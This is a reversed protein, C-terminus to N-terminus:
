RDPGGEVESEALLHPMAITRSLHRRLEDAAGSSDGSLALDKLSRHSRATDYDPRSAVGISIMLGARDAM